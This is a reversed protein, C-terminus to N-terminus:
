SVHADLNKSEWTVPVSDLFTGFLYSFILFVSLIHLLEWFQLSAPFCSQPLDQHRDWHVSTM